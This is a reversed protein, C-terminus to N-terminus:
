SIMTSLFLVFFNELQGNKDSLFVGFFCRLVCWTTILVLSTCVESFVQRCLSDDGDEGSIILSYTTIIIKFFIDVVCDKKFIFFLFLFRCCGIVLESKTPIKLM